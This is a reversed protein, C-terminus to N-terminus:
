LRENGDASTFTPWNEPTAIAAAKIGSAINYEMFRAGGELEEDKVLYAFEFAQEMAELMDNVTTM